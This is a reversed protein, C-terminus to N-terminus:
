VYQARHKERIRSLPGEGSGTIKILTEWSKLNHSFYWLDKTHLETKDLVAQMFVKENFDNYDRWDKTRMVFLHGIKSHPTLLSLKSFEIGGEHIKTDAAIHDVRFGCKETTELHITNFHLSDDILYFDNMKAYIDRFSMHNYDFDMFDPKPENRNFFDFRGGDIEVMKSYITWVIKPKNPDRPGGDFYDIFFEFNNVSDGKHEGFLVKIGELGLYNLQILHKDPKYTHYDVKIKRFYFLTDGHQDEVYVNELVATKFFEIDVAGIRM